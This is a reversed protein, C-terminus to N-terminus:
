YIYIYINYVMLKTNDAGKLLAKQLFFDSKFASSTKFLSQLDKQQNLSQYKKIGHSTEKKKDMDLEDDIDIEIPHHLPSAVSSGDSCEQDISHEFSELNHAGRSFQSKQQIKGRIPSSEGETNELIIPFTSNDMFIDSKHTHETNSRSEDMSGSKSGEESNTKQDENRTYDDIMSDPDLITFVEWVLGVILSLLIVM